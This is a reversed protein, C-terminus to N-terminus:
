LLKQFEKPILKIDNLISRLLGRGIDKGPHVPVVTTRGEPHKFFVHSGEQRIKEFDLRALIKILRQAKLTPLRSM